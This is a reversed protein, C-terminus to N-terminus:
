AENKVKITSFEWTGDPNLAVSLNQFNIIFAEGDKAPSLLIRGHDLTHGWVAPWNALLKVFDKEVDDM